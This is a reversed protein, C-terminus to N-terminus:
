CLGAWRHDGLAGVILQDVCGWREWQMLAYDHGNPSCDSSPSIDLQASFPCQGVPSMRPM